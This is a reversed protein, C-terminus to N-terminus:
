IEMTPSNTVKVLFGEGDTPFRRVWEVGLGLSTNPARVGLNDKENLSPQLYDDPIPDPFRVQPDQNTFTDPDYDYGRLPRNYGAPEEKENYDQNELTPVGTTNLIVSGDMHITGTYNKKDTHVHSPGTWVNNMPLWYNGSASDYSVLVTGDTDMSGSFFFKQSTEHVPGTWIGGMTFLTKETMKILKFELWFCGSFSTDGAQWDYVLMSKTPENKIVTGDVQPIDMYTMECIAPGSIIRFIRLDHGRKWSRPTSGGSGRSVSIESTDENIAIVQMREFSRPHDFLIIDGVKVQFFGVNDAFLLITDSPTLAKKIRAKAWM